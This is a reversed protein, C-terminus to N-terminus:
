AGAADPAPHARIHGGRHTTQGLLWRLHETDGLLDLRRWLVSGPVAQSPHCRVAALQRIRDMPRRYGPLRDLCPGRAATSVAHAAVVTATDAVTIECEARL